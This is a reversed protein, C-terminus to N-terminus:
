RRYIKFRHLAFQKLEEETADFKESNIIWEHVDKMIRGILPKNDRINLDPVWKLLKSGDILQKLRNKLGASGGSVSMKQLVEEAYKMKAEYGEPDALPEGRSMEDAYVVDKLVSWNIDSVLDVIKKKTLRSGIYHAKMHGAAAFSISEVDASSIKLREGIQKILPLGATEHGYYTHKGDRNRYTIGKGVDHLLVAINTVPDISRSAHVAAITHQYCDGEPHHHPAQKLGQLAKIEPLIKQLLGVRDLHKIYNALSKGTHSASYLEERVREKALSVTHGQKILKKAAEYTDHEINFNLKSAFRFLRYIRLADEQFREEANGVARLMNSMLDEFGGYYDYINAAADIGLANVTFDRRAADTQFSEAKEVKDPRRNDSYGVETRFQAIEYSFGEWKVTVIGFDKSKGIDHTQFAQEIDNIDINTAIDVDKIPKHLLLDRVTGGVILSQSSPFRDDLERLLSVGASLMPNKAIEQEWIEIIPTNNIKM